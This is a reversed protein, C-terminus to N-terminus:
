RGTWVKVIPLSNYKEKYNFSIGWKCYEHIDGLLSPQKHNKQLLIAIVREFSCRNFRTLVLDLLKDINYIDNIKKFYEYTIISMGGFCGKWLRDDYFKELEKDNFIKIMKKVDNYQENKDCFDWIIKYTDVSFDIKENIFVSDHIIVATDFLKNKLYYYYPLLEGRRPYETNIVITKYLEIDSLFNYDSNDDIILINNEPYLKRICNYSHIWYKNTLTSNVYRLIIFGFSLNESTCYVLNEVRSYIKKSNKNLCNNFVYRNRRILMNLKNKNDFLKKELLIRKEEEEKEEKIKRELELEYELLIRKIEKEEKLKKELEIEYCLKKKDIVLKIM